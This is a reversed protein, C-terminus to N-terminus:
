STYDVIPKEPDIFRVIDNEFEFSATCGASSRLAEESKDHMWHVGVLKAGAEKYMTCEWDADEIAAYKLALPEIGHRAAQYTWAGLAEQGPRAVGQAVCEVAAQRQEVYEEPSVQLFKAHEEFGDPMPLADTGMWEWARETLIWRCLGPLPAVALTRQVGHEEALTKLAVEVMRCGALVLPVAPDCQAGFLMATILQSRGPPWVSARLFGLPVGSETEYSFTIIRAEVEGSAPQLANRDLDRLHSVRCPGLADQASEMRDDLSSTGRAADLQSSLQASVGAAAQQKRWFAIKLNHMEEFEEMPSTSLGRAFMRAKRLSGRALFMM